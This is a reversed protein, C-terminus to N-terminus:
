VFTKLEEPLHGSDNHSLLAVQGTSRVWIITLGCNYVDSNAWLEPSAGLARCAFYRIINGHCVLVEHHDDSHTRRVFHTYAQEAQAANRELETEPVFAFAQPDRAPLAPICEWLLRSPFAPVGPFCGEIAQATQEARHMTSYHIAQIPLRSLRHAILEAQRQGTETLDGGLGDDPDTLNDYQGHRVLYLIRVPM